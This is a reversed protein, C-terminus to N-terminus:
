FFSTHIVNMQSCCCFSGNSDVRIEIEENSGKQISCLWLPLVLLLGKIRMLSKKQLKCTIPYTSIGEPVIFIYLFVNLTNYTKVSYLM